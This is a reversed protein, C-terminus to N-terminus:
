HKNKMHYNFASKSAHGRGCINCIYPKEGAINIITYHKM